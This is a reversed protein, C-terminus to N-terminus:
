ELLKCVLYMTLGAEVGWGVGGVCFCVLGRASDMGFLCVSERGRGSQPHYHFLCSFKFYCFCVVWNWVMQLHVQHNACSQPMTGM